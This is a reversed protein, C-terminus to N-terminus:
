VAQRMMKKRWFLAVILLVPFVSAALIGLKLNNGFFDSFMGVYTPGGGCGLDGALAFFAFMATGGGRIDVAAMSFTGPWLVGVSLGCIGCGLLSVVPWPSLSIMGYSLLCLLASFIMVKELSVRDSLRSYLLRSTGMLLAFFLPGALDGVTKGVGLGTEAFASAWQSVAQECAGACVMLIALVWFLKKTLLQKISLGETAEEDIHRIPVLMFYFANLLPIMAWLCALWKWHQLGIMTFFITSLIVVGAHGWCYFSHLLSMASEKRKTPCAEVIPSILVEIIGGGIAYLAVSIILGLFPDSLLEPLFAMGCLGVASFLHAGVISVRYGIKDVFKVSLLDVLLQVGFNFVILLAIKDLSIQYSKQFTIFLLPAFNNVIAQTIYGIFCATLTHNYNCYRKLANM